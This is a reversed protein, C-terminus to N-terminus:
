LANHRANDGPEHAASWRLLTEVIRPLNSEHFMNSHDFATTEEQIGRRAMSRWGFRSAGDILNPENSCVFHLIPADIPRPKYFPLNGREIRSLLSKVIARQAVPVLLRRFPIVAPWALRKALYSPNLAYNENQASGRARWQCRASEIWARAGRLPSPFGPMYADFLVLRVDRGERILQRATEVAVVGGYCFGALFVPGGPQAQRIAQAMAEGAREFTFLSNGYWTSAPRVISLDMRGRLHTALRRFYLGEEGDAPISFLRRGAAEDGVPFVRIESSSDSALRPAPAKGVLEALHALTPEDLFSAAMASTQSGFRQDVEALMTIAALSDGGADFFNEDFGLDDRDLIRSWIEYTRFFVQDSKYKSVEAPSPLERRKKAFRETLLWRQPKGLEGRPIEDVFYFRNPVKFRALQTGAFRRLEGVGLPSDVSPRLVVACAVDEGLTPHPVPFAAAELVAPHSAIAADVEAPSVKEGGRNIMEKLRGAVFLNGDRDLRGLDGTRFWGDLFAARNADPDDLYGPFVAPGRVAIEGDAGPAAPEGAPGFIRIELGCSRGASNPVRGGPLFADVAIPCAETMGYDNFVPIQLIEELGNRVAAPLPAGASQLFRLSLPPQPPDRLLQALAAQHVAPACGYWTPKLERLWRLYSAPDFGGTAIVAGGSRLQALSNEAGTIHSLSTMLLLRDSATLRLTDRRAEAGAILNSETLPVLKLTSTTASTAFILKADSPGRLLPTRPAAPSLEWDSPSLGPRARLVALGMSAAAQSEADFGPTAILASASLRRLLSAVEAATTKPQLPACACHGIVGAIALIQPAGQAALVAVVGDPPIGAQQLRLRCAEVQAWFEGFGLVAGGPVILAPAHPNLEAHHAIPALLASVSRPM